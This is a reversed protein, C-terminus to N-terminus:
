AIHFLDCWVEKLSVLESFYSRLDSFIRIIFDTEICSDYINVYVKYLKM